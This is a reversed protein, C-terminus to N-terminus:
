KVCWSYCHYCCLMVSYIIDNKCDVTGHHGAGVAHIAEQSVRAVALVIVLALVVRRGVREDGQLPRTVRALLPVLIHQRTHPVLALSVAGPGRGRRTNTLIM